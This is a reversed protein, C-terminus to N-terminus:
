YGYFATSVLMSTLVILCLVAWGKKVWDRRRWKKKKTITDDHM